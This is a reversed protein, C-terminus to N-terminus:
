WHPLTFTHFRNCPGWSRNRVIFFLLPSLKRHSDQLMNILLQRLMTALLHPLSPTGSPFIHVNIGTLKTVSFTRFRGDALKTRLCLTSLFVLFEHPISSIEAIRVNQTMLNSARHHTHVWEEDIPGSFGEGKRRLPKESEM